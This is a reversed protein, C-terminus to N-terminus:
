GALIAPRSLFFITRLWCHMWSGLQGVNLNARKILCHTSLIKWIGSGSGKLHNILWHKARSSFPRTWFEKEVFGLLLCPLAPVKLHNSPDTGFASPLETTNIVKALWNWSIASFVRFSLTTKCIYQLYECLRKGKSGLQALISQLDPNKNSPHPAHNQYSQCGLISGPINFCLREPSVVQEMLTAPQYLLLRTAKLPVTTPKLKLVCQWIAKLVKQKEM